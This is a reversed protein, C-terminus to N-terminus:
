HSNNMKQGQPVLTGKQIIKKKSEEREVTEEGNKKRKKDYIYIYINRGSGDNVFSHAPNSSLCARM